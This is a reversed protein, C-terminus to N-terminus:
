SRGRNKRRTPASRPTSKRTQSETERRQEHPHGRQTQAVDSPLVVIDLTADMLPVRARARGNPPPPEPLTIEVELSRTEGPAITVHGGVIGLSLCGVIARSRLPTILVDVLEDAESDPKVTLGQLAQAMDIAPALDDRLPVDLV